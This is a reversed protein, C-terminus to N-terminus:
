SARNVEEVPVNQDSVSEAKARGNIYAPRFIYRGGNVKSRAEETSFGQEKLRAIEYARERQIDLM